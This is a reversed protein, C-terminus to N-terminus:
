FPIDDDGPPPAAPAEAAPPSAPSEEGFGRKGRGGVASDAGGAGGGAGQLFVVREAVVETSYRKKGDKDDWSRTQLRGEVYVSRGKALYKSCHEAQEGWVNVRHWETKEQKQGTKDKWVENTAVSLNCVPRNSPTYKLEPDAGLNGVLIVKNVSGM